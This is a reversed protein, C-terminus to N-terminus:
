RKVLSLFVKYITHGKKYCGATFCAKKAPQTDMCELSCFVQESNECYYGYEGLEKDCIDCLLPEIIECVWKKLEISDDKDGILRPKIRTM